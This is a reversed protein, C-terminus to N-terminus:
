RIYYRLYALFGWVGALGSQVIVFLFLGRWGRAMGLLGAICFGLLGSILLSPVPPPEIALVGGLGNVLGKMWWLWGEALCRGTAAAFPADMVGGCQSNQRLLLLTVGAAIAYLALGFLGFATFRTGPQVQARRGAKKM